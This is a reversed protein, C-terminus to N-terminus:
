SGHSTSMIIVPKEVLAFALATSLMSVIVGNRGGTFLTSGSTVKALTVPTSAHVKRFASVCTLNLRGPRAAHGPAHAGGDGGVNVEGGSEHFEADVAAQAESITAASQLAHPISYAAVGGLSDGVVLLGSSIVVEVSVVRIKPGCECTALFVIDAEPEKGDDASASLRVFAWLVNNDADAFVVHGPPLERPIWVALIPAQTVESLQLHAIHLITRQSDSSTAVAAVTLSPVRSCCATVDLVGSAGREQAECSEGGCHQSDSSVVNQTHSTSPVEQPLSLSWQSWRSSYRRAACCSLPNCHPPVVCVTSWVSACDSRDVAEHQQEHMLQLCMLRGLSTAVYVTDHAALALACVGEYTAEHRVPLGIDATDTNRAGAAEIDGLPHEPSSASAAPLTVSLETTCPQPAEAVVTTEQQTEENQQQPHKLCLRQTLLHTTHVPLWEPLNWLKLACDGGGTVLLQSGVAVCCWAGHGAHCRITTVCKGNRADWMRV